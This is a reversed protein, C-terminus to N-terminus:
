SAATFRKFARWSPKARGSRKLLGSSRCFSCNGQSGPPPDRWEFWFFRGIRWSHRHDRVLAFARDLMRTQGGPGKNIGNGEPRGSAWGLETLWLETRGDGHARMVARTRRIQFRLDPLTPSYPHLAVVDFDRKIGPVRYLRALFRWAHFDSLGPMGALVIQAGPDVGKIAADSIRLLRAYKRASPRPNFYHILNPENWVQWARVPMPPAGSHQAQYLLPDTWYRGGPGYRAVARGVFRKWGRRARESGLPPTQATKEAYRPAGYLVPLVTIGRSALNGVVADAPGWRYHDRRPEVLQWYLFWRVEDIRGSRMRDLDSNSLMGSGSVVGFLHQQSTAGGPQRSAVAVVAAVVVVLAIPFRM